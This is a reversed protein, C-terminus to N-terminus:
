WTDTQNSATGFLLDPPNLCFATDPRAAQWSGCGLTVAGAANPSQIGTTKERWGQIEPLLREATGRSTVVSQCNTSTKSAEPCGSQFM